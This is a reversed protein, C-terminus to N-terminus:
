QARTWARVFAALCGSGGAYVDGGAGSGSEGAQVDPHCREPARSCRVSARRCAWLWADQAFDGNRAPRRMAAPLYGAVVRPV